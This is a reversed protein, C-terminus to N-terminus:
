ASLRQSSQHSQERAERIAALAQDRATHYVHEALSQCPADLAMKRLAVQMRVATLEDLPKGDFHVVGSHSTFLLPMSLPANM